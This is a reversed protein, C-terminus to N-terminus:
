VRGIPFLMPQTFKKCTSEIVGKNLGQGVRAEGGRLKSSIKLARDKESVIVVMEKPRVAIDALQSQFVDVDIDPAALALADINGVTKSNGDLSMTRLAEMTVMTGMSHALVFLSEPKASQVAKITRALGNRAIEASDRDYLYLATKNASPWSYHVVIGPVQYDHRLQAAEYVGAAFNVNYGHIFILVSRQGAPEANLANRLAQSFAADSDYADASLMTFDKAPDPKGDVSRIKGPERKEPITVNIRAYSLDFSRDKGFMIRTNEVPKRSTAVFVPEVSAVGPALVPTEGFGKPASICGTLFLLVIL